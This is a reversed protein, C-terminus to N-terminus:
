VIGILNRKIPENWRHSNKSGHILTAPEGAFTLVFADAVNPSKHGRRKIDSKAEAFLKGSSTFSYKPIVLESALIEEPSERGKEGAPLTTDRSELWERARFWLETRLNRYKESASATESVNIGRCPLGLERLRDVVGAGLGIVDVLIESPRESNPAADWKAKVRGTTQMIDADGWTEIDTVARRNRVVLANKDDGFRAVDVGWVPKLFPPIVIDRCRASEVLEFPIITDDDSKPFLGLCRVRFANSERGYRRSIDEVFDASVRDSYYVGSEREAEPVAPGAAVRIALWMDRLKHHTDYFFGTSRIPNSLLLTTCNHGAMSGAAAEYIAEAVGSGEDAILLVHGDGSHVGQLAEPKEARATRASFFSEQPSARLEIRDSKIDLLEQLAPPLRKAWKLVEAFLADFLQSATPATAVTKQPYRCTLSHVVCWAAVTTKGPGHCSAISIRREGRAYGQLVAIQFDDPQAGFVERVFRM